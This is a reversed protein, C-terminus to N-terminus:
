YTIGSGNFTHSISFDNFGVRVNGRHIVRLAFQGGIGLSSITVGAAMRSAISDSQLTAPHASDIKSAKASSASDGRDGADSPGGSDSSASFDASSTAAAANGSQAFCSGGFLLSVVALSLM